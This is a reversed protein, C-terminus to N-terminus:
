EEVLFSVHLPVGTMENRLSSRFKCPPARTPKNRPPSRPVAPAVTKPRLARPLKQFLGSPVALHRGGGDLGLVSPSGRQSCQNSAHKSGMSAEFVEQPGKNIEHQKQKECPSPYGGKTLTMSYVTMLSQFSSFTAVLYIERWPTTYYLTDQVRCRIVWRSRSNTTWISFDLSRSHAFEVILFIINLLHPTASSSATLSLHEHSFRALRM